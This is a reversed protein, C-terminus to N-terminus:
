SHLAVPSLALRRLDDAVRRALQPQLEEWAADEVLDALLAAVAALEVLSRTPTAAISAVAERESEYVVGLAADLAPPVHVPPQEGALDFLAQKAAVANTYRSMTM